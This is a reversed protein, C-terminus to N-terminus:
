IAFILDFDYENKSEMLDKKLSDLKPKLLLQTNSQQVSHPLGMLAEKYQDPTMRFSDICLIESAHYSYFDDHGTRLM